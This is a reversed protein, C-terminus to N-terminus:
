SPGVLGSCAAALGSALAQFFAIMPVDGNVVAASWVGGTDGLVLVIWAIWYRLKEGPGRRVYPALVKTAHQRDAQAAVVEKGAEVLVFNTATAPTEFGAANAANHRASSEGSAEWAAEQEDALAAYEHEVYTTGLQNPRTHAGVNSLRPLTIRDAEATWTDVPQAPAAPLTATSKM